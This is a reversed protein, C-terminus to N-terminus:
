EDEWEFIVNNKKTTSNDKNNNSDTDKPRKSFLNKFNDKETKLDEKIKKAVSKTDYSFKPNDVTGTLSVYLSTRGKTEEENILFESNEKKNKKAKNSLLESLLLKIKYDIKNDFTHNGSLDIDLASSKIEMYPISIVKNKISINNKLTSFKIHELESLSIFRSLSELSKYNILEGNKVIVDCNVILNDQFLKIDGLISSFNINANLVGNINKSTINTQNFNNFSSFLQQININTLNLSSNILYKNNNNKLNIDGIFSGNLILSNINQVSIINDKIYLICNFNTAKLKEYVVKKSNIDCLLEIKKDSYTSTNSETEDFFLIEDLNILKSNVDIDILLDSNDNTFEKVNGNINFDSDSYIGVLKQILIEDKKLEFVGNIDQFSYPYQKLKINTETLKISGTNEGNFFNKYTFENINNIIGNLEFKLSCVGNIKEIDDNNIQENIDSLDIEGNITGKYNITNLNNLDINGTLINNNISFEYKSITISSNELDYNKDQEYVGILNIDEFKYKKYKYIGKEIDFNILIKPCRSSSLIGNIKGNFNINGNVELSDFNHKFCIPIIGKVENIDSNDAKFDINVLLDNKMNFSGNIFFDINNFNLECDKLELKDNFYKLNSNIKGNINEYYRKNSLYLYKVLFNNNLNTEINSSNFDGKLSLNDFFLHTKIITEENVYIFNSNTLEIKNLKINAKSNSNKTEKLCYYNYYGNKNAKIKIKSNDLAIKKISFNESIIDWINFYVYLKETFLLTDNNFNDKKNKYNEIILVENFLITTNPFTKLFTIDIEKISIKSEFYNNLEAKAINKIKDGKLFLILSIASIIVLFLILLSIIVAKFIKM